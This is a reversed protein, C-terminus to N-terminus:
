ILDIDITSQTIRHTELWTDLDEKLYRITRGIKIFSPGPTRNGRPGNVRDQRLYGLSMGIYLSAEKENFAKKDLENM